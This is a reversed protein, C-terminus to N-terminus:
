WTELCLIKTKETTISPSNDWHVHLWCRHLEATEFRRYQSASSMKPMKADKLSPRGRLSCTDRFDHM